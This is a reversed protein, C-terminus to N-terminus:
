AELLSSVSQFQSSTRGPRRCLFLLVVSYQLPHKLILGTGLYNVTGKIMSEISILGNYNTIFVDIMGSPHYLHHGLM